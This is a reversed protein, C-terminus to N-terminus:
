YPMVFRDSTVLCSLQRTDITAPVDLEFVDSVMEGVSVDDNNNTTTTMSMMMQQQQQQHHRQKMLVADMRASRIAMKLAFYISNSVIYPPEGVAKSGLIGSVNYKNKLLTINIVGPIDQLLPQKYDWTGTTLLSATSPHYTMRETLFYGLAMVVAGEIQGIDIAPNLSQGCDYVMEASKVHVEGSLVDLELETVLAAYVFYQFFQGNPNSDPSYWGETNLSVSSPLSSLLSVWEDTSMRHLSSSVPSPSSSAKRYPDLRNNLTQCANLAAQVIVESTGSGGTCGGNVVRDTSTSLVRVLSLEIGLAMAVAQAAKTNIGQGIECGSHCIVVTGDNSDVGLQVGANYGSWGMGYKVPTIAIGKKRWLNHDNYQNCIALRSDYCSREMLTSWVTPLTCDTIVQGCIAKKGDGIFNRQQIINLPVKLESAIREMMMETFLCTQVVGPARMSTRPPTNTYCIKAIGQYNPFFYANDAWNMGMYISGITDSDDMGADVYFKYKLAIIQGDDNYGVEYDAVWGERGATLFFMLSTLLCTLDYM